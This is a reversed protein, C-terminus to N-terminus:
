FYNESDEERVDKFCRRLLAAVAADKACVDFFSSDVAKIVLEAQSAPFDAVGRDASGPTAGALEKPFAIFTGNVTQALGEAWHLLKSSSLWTGDAVDDTTDTSVTELEDVYWIWRHLMPQLAHLIDKLDFALLAGDRDHISYVHIAGM